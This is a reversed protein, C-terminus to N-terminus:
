LCGDSKTKIFYQKKVHKITQQIKDTNIEQLWKAAMGQRCAHVGAFPQM